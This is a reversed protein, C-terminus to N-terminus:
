ARMPRPSHAAVMTAAGHFWLPAPPVIFWLGDRSRTADSHAKASAAPHGAVCATCELTEHLASASPTLRAPQPAQRHGCQEDDGGKEAGVHCRCLARLVGLTRHTQHHGIGRAPHSIDGRAQETRMHGLRPMLRDCHLIPGTTAARDSSVSHRLCGGIARHQQYGGYRIEGNERREIRVQGIAHFAIQHRHDKGGVVRHQERRAATGRETAHGFQNCM